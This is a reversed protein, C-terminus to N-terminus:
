DIADLDGAFEIGCMQGGVFPREIAPEAEPPQKRNVEELYDEANQRPTWDIARAGPDDFPRRTNASVGYVTEYHLGTPADIAARVLSVWDEFGLWMWLSRQHPPVRQCCGIRLNVVSLGHKDAYLRGVAEGFVKSLGYRSDPRNPADRGVTRDRRHFGVVHHTSGFVVRRVGCRRAAEYVNFTGDINADRIVSWDDEDTRAGLHVVTDVGEMALTMEDLSELRAKVFREGAGAPRDLERRHTLRLEGYVGRLGDRLERGLNGNAGTILIREAM